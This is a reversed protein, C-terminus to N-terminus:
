QQKYAVTAAFYAYLSCLGDKSETDKNKTLVDYVFSLPSVAVSFSKGATGTITVTDGLKHASINPITILYRGDDQQVPTYAKETTKGSVLERVTVKVNTPASGDTTKLFVDLTTESGLQLRYNAKEVKSGSLERAIANPQVATKITDYDYRIAYHRASEAYDTGIDFHNVSALYIQMYHGYDAIAHILDTTKQDFASAHEEFVQFYEEVSYTKSVTKGNGYHYTATITEAMQISKVYCTFGYYKKSANMHNPDFTDTSTSGGKGSISFEMYGAEREAETLADLDMFFNVGIQGSLVLNQTQFTPASYPAFSVSYRIVAPRGQVDTLGTIEVAYEGDYAPLESFAPRFIICTGDGYGGDEVNFYDHEGDVVGTETGSDFTWTRGDSKRTLVVRVESLEPDEFVDGNLSVSWPENVDFTDTLNNGSAPWSVFDFDDVKRTTVGDGLVRLASYCWSGATAAGIGMTTTSSYLIWRRHGVRDINSVDEDGMYLGIVGGVGNWTMALNSHGTAFYARDYDEQSMDDPKNPYHNLGKKLMALCLAGYSASLNLEDTFAVEDVGASTRFYNIWGLANAYASSSLVGPRYDTGTTVPTVAYTESIAPISAYRQRLAEMTPKALSKRGSVTFLMTTLVETDKDVALRSTGATYEWYRVGGDTKETKKGQYAGILLPCGVVNLEALENGWCDLQALPSHGKVDLRQLRNDHCDLQTLQSNESVDLEQLRNGACSLRELATLYGIGTLSAIGMGDLSLSRIEAIEESSLYGNGDADCNAKLHGLFVADPFYDVTLPVGLADVILLTARDVTLTGSGDTYNDVPIGDWDASEKTGCYAKLLHPCGGIDLEGIENGYCALTTLEANGSVDLATLSNRSCVLSELATNRSVSLYTLRNDSCQLNRLGALWNVNLATLKNKGCQLNELATNSSLNLSTLSNDLCDLTVLSSVGTLDLNTLSNHSCILHEVNEMRFLDLTTLQNYSCRLVRLESNMSVDLSTLQNSSCTLTELGTNGSVNLSTLRNDDCEIRSLSRSSGTNLSTLRNSGCTLVKLRSNRNLNLTTLQNSSCILTELATNGSVDLSTLQNESCDVYTLSPFSEIGELSSIGMGAVSIEQANSLEEDDLSGNGDADFESLVYARFIEDPFNELSVAVLATRVEADERIGTQAADSGATVDRGTDNESVVEERPEAASGNWEAASVAFPVAQLLLVFVLLISTIRKM